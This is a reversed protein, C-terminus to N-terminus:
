EDNKFFYDIVRVADPLADLYSYHGANQFVVLGADPIAAELKQAQWLPTAEDNAGWLLLTPRTIQPALPLLDEEVVAVFTEKLVGANLYDESGVRQVYANRAKQLARALPSDADDPSLTRYIQRSLRQLWPTEERVGAADCLVIKHLRETHQAGLVISIRGGFSHGFLHARELGQSHMYDLTFKAYDYITWTRPPPDSEGFGPLDPMYCRFGHEALQEGLPWLLRLNAGWGHLLLVPDGTGVVTHAVKQSNITIHKIPPETM